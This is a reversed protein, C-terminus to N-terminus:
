VVRDGGGQALVGVEARGTWATRRGNGTGGEQPGRGLGHSRKIEKTIVTKPNKHMITM